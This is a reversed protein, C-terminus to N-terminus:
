LILQQEPQTTTPLNNFKDVFADAVGEPTLYGLAQHPRERNYWEILDPLYRKLEKITKYQHLYIGEYKLARWLREIYANDNSRGRGTMSINISYEALVNIWDQSTFQAGQDSNLINPIGYTLVALNLCDICAEVCLDNSLRWSVVLRSYVDIIAILYVFGGEVRLYTIDVQWVQKLSVVKLGKLLYPHVMDAHNRKSTNPAPYIAQLSLLRMLRRVRKHNVTIGSRVLIARIRRYGYIPYKEYIEVIEQCLESDNRVSTKQYYINSRTM